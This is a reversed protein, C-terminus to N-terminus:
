RKFGFQNPCTELFTECKLLIVSDSLKSMLTALVISRYNNSDCLNGCKNKVIPVIITEIMPVRLYSHTFFLTFCMFLLIHLKKHDFKFYEACLDDSGAAKGCKLQSILNSIDICSVTMDDTHQINELKTMIENKLDSDCTNANLINCFHKKWLNTINSEGSTGDILNSIIANSSNLKKLDTWFSDYDNNLLNSAMADARIAEESEKVVRLAYKFRSKSSKMNHYIAGNTPKNHIKREWLADQAISYHKKVYQNWAAISCFSYNKVTNLMPICNTDSTKLASDSSNYFLDMDKCHTTCNSQKCLLANIPICINSLNENTCITYASKDLDSATRWKPLNVQKRKYGCDFKSDINCLVNVTLPFLDSCVVNDTIYADSIISRGDATTICHDLWSTTGHAQSIFTFSSSPLLCKDIFDLKNLNCFEM